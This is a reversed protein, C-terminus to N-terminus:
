SLLWQLVMGLAIFVPLIIVPHILRTWWAGSRAALVRQQRRIQDILEQDPPPADDRIVPYYWDGRLEWSWQGLISKPDLNDLKKAVPKDKHIRQPIFTM